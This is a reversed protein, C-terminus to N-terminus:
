SDLDLNAFASINIHGEEQEESATPRSKKAQGQKGCSTILFAPMRHELSINDLGFPSMFHQGILCMTYKKRVFMSM